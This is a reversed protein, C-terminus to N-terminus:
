PSVAGDDGARSSSQRLACCGVLLRDTISSVKARVKSQGRGLGAAPLTRAAGARANGPPVTTWSGPKTATAAASARAAAVARGSYPM